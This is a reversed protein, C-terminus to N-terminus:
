DDAVDRAHAAPVLVALLPATMLTTLVAMLVMMTFVTPTIPGFDLGLNLIILEM